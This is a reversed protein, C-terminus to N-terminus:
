RNTEKASILVALPIVPPDAAFSSSSGQSTVIKGDFLFLYPLSQNQSRGKGALLILLPWEV